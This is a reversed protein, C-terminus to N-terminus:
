TELQSCHQFVKALIANNILTVEDSATKRVIRCSGVRQVVQGFYGVRGMHGTLDTSIGGITSHQWLTVVGNFTYRLLWVSPFFM